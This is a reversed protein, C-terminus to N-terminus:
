QGVWLNDRKFHGKIHYLVQLKGRLDWFYNELPTRLTSSCLLGFTDRKVRSWIRCNTQPAFWRPRINIGWVCNHLNNRGWAIREASQPSFLLTARFLSSYCAVRVRLARPRYNWIQGPALCRGRLLIRNDYIYLSSSSKKARCFRQMICLFLVLALLHHIDVARLDM